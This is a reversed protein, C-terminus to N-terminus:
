FFGLLLIAPLVFFLDGLAFYLITVAVCSIVLSKLINVMNIGYKRRAIMTIIIGVLVYGAFTLIMLKGLFEGFGAQGEAYLLETLLVLLLCFFLGKNGM